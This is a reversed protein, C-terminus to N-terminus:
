NKILPVKISSQIWCGIKLTKGAMGEIFIEKKTPAKANYNAASQAAMKKLTPDVRSAKRAQKAALWYVARKNFNSSGCNKASDNYMSAISLHPKGSSPNLKLAKHFYTRAQSYKGKNKLTLGIKYALIGKRYSDSELDFAQKLYSEAETDKGNQFLVTAVFYKTDASPATEDYAKVLNEYLSVNTCAKHYMKSVARKLWVSDSKHAQFNSEYLPILNECNLRQNILGLMSGSIQDYFKLYDEYYKKYRKEKKTLDQGNDKKIILTNLKESYNKVEVEIKETIDDYKNFLDQPSKVGNDYLDVMLSFYTYLSKPNKFSAKDTEFANDFCNYLESNSIGLESRHDYKLQCAMAAYQGQKTKSPFYQASQKWLKLLDNIFSVRDPGSTQEIKAELIGKGEKYIAINLKPCNDRVYMWPEYAADYNKTLVHGHFLSLKTKCEEEISQAFTSNLCICLLTFLSTFKTKM